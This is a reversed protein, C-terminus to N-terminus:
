EKVFRDVKMIEDVEVKLLYIGKSLSSVNFRVINEGSKLQQTSNTIEEGL